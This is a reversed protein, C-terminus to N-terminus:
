MDNTEVFLKYGFLDMENKTIKEIRRIQEINLEEEYGGIKGKRFFKGNPKWITRSIDNDFGYKAEKKQMNSFSNGEIVKKILEDPREIKIFGLVRNIQNFTDNLLDEYKLVMIDADYVNNIWHQVHQKWRIVYSDEGDIMKEFTTTQGLNNLYHYYSVIMDRPDRILYIVRRYEPKPLHHSKFCNFDLYRKYYKKYHIDPVLDQTLSDPLFETSIGFLLGSLLNQMWTNGSKPFGVVFVDCEKTEKISVFHTPLEGINNVKNNNTKLFPFLKKLKKKVYKPLM